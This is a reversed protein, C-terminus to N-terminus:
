KSSQLDLWDAEISRLNDRECDSLFFTDLSMAFEGGITEYIRGGFAQDTVIHCQRPVDAFFVEFAKGDEVERVYPLKALVGPLYTEALLPTIRFGVFASTEAYLRDYFGTVEGDVKARYSTNGVEFSEGLDNPALGLTLRPRFFVLLWPITSGATERNKAQSFM